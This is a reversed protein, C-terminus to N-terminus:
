RVKYEFPHRLITALPGLTPELLAATRNYPKSPTEPLAIAQRRLPAQRGAPVGLKWLISIPVRLLNPPM